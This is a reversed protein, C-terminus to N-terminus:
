AIDENCYRVGKYQIRIAIQKEREYERCLKKAKICADMMGRATIAEEWVVPQQHHTSFNFIYQKM